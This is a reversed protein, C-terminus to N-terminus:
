NFKANGKKAQGVFERRAEVAEKAWVALKKPDNLVTDPVMFYNSERQGAKFEFAPMGARKYRKRTEANTFMFLSEQWILAIFQGECYVGHGGFMSRLSVRPVLQMQDMVYAPFKTNSRKRPAM